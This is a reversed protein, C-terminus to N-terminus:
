DKQSYIHVGYPDFQDSFSGESIFVERDEFLVTLTDSTPQNVEDYFDSFTTTIEQNSSNVAFLFRRDQANKILFHIDPSNVDLWDGIEDHSVLIPTLQELERTISKLNSWHQPSNPIFYRDSGSGPLGPGGFCYYFIGKAGHVIALYTMCKEEAYTPERDWGWARNDEDQYGFAQLVVWLPKSVGIAKMAEFAADVYDSVITVRYDAWKWIPYPDIMFIDSVNIYDIYRDPDNVVVSTLHHEIFFSTIAHFTAFPLLLTSWFIAPSPNRFGLAVYLGISGGLIFALFPALQQEFSGSFSIM